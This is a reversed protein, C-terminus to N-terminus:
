EIRFVFGLTVEAHHSAFDEPVRPGDDGHVVWRASLELATGEPLPMSLATEVHYGTTRLLAGQGTRALEVGAAFAPQLALDRIRWPRGDLRLACSAGTRSGRIESSWDSTLRARWALAGVPQPGGHGSPWRGGGSLVVDAHATSVALATMASAILLRRLLRM